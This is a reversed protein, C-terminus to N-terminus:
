VTSLAAGDNCVVRWRRNAGDQIAHLRISDNADAMTITNNGTQNIPAAVTIVCTGGDTLIYLLLEQGVFSPVALTRTESGATVLPVHGSTTVPIAEGNGPDAIARTLPQHATLNPTKTMLSKVRAAGSVVDEIAYGFFINGNSTTTLAGTGATGGVPNGDEDWYVANGADIAGTAKVTDFVGAIQLSGQKGSETGQSVCVGIFGEQVVVDGGNVNAAAIFDVVDGAQYFKAQM